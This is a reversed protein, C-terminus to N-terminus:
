LPREYIGPQNGATGVFRLTKGTMDIFFAGIDKFRALNFVNHNDRDDLEISFLGEPAAYIVDAGAPHWACGALPAGVRTVLGTRKSSPDYIFIEFDNWLLLRGEGAPKEWAAHLADFSDVVTGSRRDYLLSKTEKVDTLVLYNNNTDTFIYRGTPLEASKEPQGPHDVSMIELTPGDTLTRTLYIDRGVIAADDIDQALLLPTAAGSEPDVTFVGRDTVASIMTGDTSWRATLRGDQPLVQHLAKSEEASATPYLYLEAGDDALDARLLLRDGNPSWHLESDSYKELEFRALLDSSGTKRRYVALELWNPSRRLLATEQGDASFTSAAIDGAELLEPVTDKLLIVDEVFTTEGSKVRLTKTWPLYGTKSLSIEYDEPLLRFLSNPTTKPQMVGNLYIKAGAPVSDLKIIGTKELRGKHWNYGYGKTVLVVIPATVVFGILFLATITHRIRPSM